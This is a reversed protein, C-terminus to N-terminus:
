YDEEPFRIEEGIGTGLKIEEDYSEIIEITGPDPSCKKGDWCRGMPCQCIKINKVKEGSCINEGCMEPYNNSKKDCEVLFIKGEAKLCKNGENM